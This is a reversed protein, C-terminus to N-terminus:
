TTRSGVPTKATGTAQATFAQREGQPAPNIWTTM